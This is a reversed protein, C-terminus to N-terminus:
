QATYSLTASFSLQTVDAASPDSAVSTRVRVGIRDGAAVPLVGLNINTATRFTGATVISSPSGFRISSTLPTTVYSSAIQDIGNPNSSARFVTFDYQLGTINISTVSAVLLDASIQLNQVTGNAPIPFAFGAAQPPSTSQGSGDIVEVGSSGFGMLIPAASVVTAGSLITGTSFAILVTNAATAGTPGAAGTAGTPGTSGAAGSAGTPGAIGTAGTAGTVGQQGQAGTGGVPGIAGTAGTNGQLGQPGTPGVAGTPGTPGTAGTAAATAAHFYGNVDIVLDTQGSDARIQFQNGGTCSGICLPIISFAGNFSVQGALPSPVSPNFVGISAFGITSDVASVRIDGLHTSNLMVVSAAIAAADAPIGCNTASGGQANFSPAVAQFANTSNATLPTGVVRTDVIRCPAVSVYALDPNSVANTTAAAAMAHSGAMGALLASIARCILRRSSIARVSTIPM